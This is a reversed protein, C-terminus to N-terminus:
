RAAKLAAEVVAAIALLEADDGGARSLMLGAPAEGARHMPLSISCGDMVNILTPNRLMLLNIRTFADDDEVLEAITPAITPVTPMALVDFASVEERLAAVFAARAQALQIYDAADQNRGRLVRTRVRPDYGDGKAEILDRHHAYAEAPAFGGKANMRAVEAFRVFPEDSVVAGAKALLDLARDFSAAVHADLGDLAVTQPVAIRLGKLSSPGDKSLAAGSMIEHLIRCCEVSNALPGISDLTQSLPFAGERPVSAATPKYGTIGCFAAPIRCSGGTDSGIGAFAMGDAVSVAAGSSSGGPIRRTTAREYPSAPTGYHPNLGLGSFAFETMNTRGMVIFGARRLRAIAPADREAAPADALVTSGATTPEGALDFLDKVSIPIGAFPSPALGAARLKDMAEAAALAAERHVKIFTRKGEGDPADIRALAERVLALASTRGSALDDALASLTRAM